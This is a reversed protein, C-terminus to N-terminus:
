KKLDAKIEQISSAIMDLKTEVTVLRKDITTQYDSKIDKSESELVSIRSSTTGWTL